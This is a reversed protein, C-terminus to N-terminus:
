RKAIIFDAVVVTTHELDLHDEMVCERVHSGADLEARWHIVDVDCGLANREIHHLLLLINTRVDLCDAVKHELILRRWVGRGM